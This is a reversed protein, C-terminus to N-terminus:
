KSLLDKVTLVVTIAAISLVLAQTFSNPWQTNIGIAVATFFLPIYINIKRM